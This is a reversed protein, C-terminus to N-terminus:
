CVCIKISVVVHQVLRRCECFWCTILKCLVIWKQLEDRYPRSTLLCLHVYVEKTKSYLDEKEGHIWLTDFGMTSNVVRLHFCHSFLKPSKERVVYLAIRRSACFLIELSVHKGHGNATKTFTFKCIQKITSKCSSYKRAKRFCFANRPRSFFCPPPFSPVPSGAEQWSCNWGWIGEVRWCGRVFECQWFACKDFTM